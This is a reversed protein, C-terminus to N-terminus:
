FNFFFKQKSMIKNLDKNKKTHTKGSKKIVCEKIRKENSKDNKGKTIKSNCNDIKKNIKKAM